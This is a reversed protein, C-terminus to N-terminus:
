VYIYIDCHTDVLGGRPAGCTGVVQGFRAGCTSVAGPHWPPGCTLDTPLDGCTSCGYLAYIYIYIYICM